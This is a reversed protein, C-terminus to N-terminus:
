PLSKAQRILGPLYLLLAILCVLQIGSLGLGFDFPVPKLGDVALRWVLYASLFAKFLLGPRTALTSQLRQLGVALLALFLIEYIQTPHRAVGDGFDVAWPLSSANGYTADNLGALFCGVRGVAIALILPFVFRDGTSRRVGALRKAIEVGILGGLLGGVVSQGGLFFNVLNLNERALPLEHLWFLAKNGLGAGALCGVLVAWHQFESLPPLTAAPRRRYLQVGLFIGLAQLGAHVLHASSASLM